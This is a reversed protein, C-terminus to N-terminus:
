KAKNKGEKKKPKTTKDVKIRSQGILAHSDPLTRWYLVGMASLIFWVTCSWWALYDLIPGYFAPTLVRHNNYLAVTDTVNNIFGRYQEPFVTADIPFPKPSRRRSSEPLGMIELTTNLASCVGMDLQGQRVMLLALFGFCLTPCLYQLAAVCLYSYQATLRSKVSQAAITGTRRYSSMIVSKVSHLFSQLHPRTLIMRILVMLVLLLFRVKKWLTETVFFAGDVGPEKLCDRHVDTENNCKVLDPLMLDMTMPRIYMMSVVFPLILNLHLLFQNFGSLKMEKAHITMMDNYCRSYRLTPLVFISALVASFLALGVRAVQTSFMIPPTIHLKELLVDTRNAADEFCADLDVDLFHKTSGTVLGAAVIFFVFGLLASIKVEANEFGQFWLLRLMYFVSWLFGMSACWFGIDYSSCARICSYTEMWFYIGVMVVSLFLLTDVEEYFPHQTLRTSATGVPVGLLQLETIDKKTAKKARKDDPKGLKALVADPPPLWFTLKGVFWHTISYIGALRQSVFVIIISGILEPPFIAM